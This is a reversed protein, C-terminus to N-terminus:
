KPSPETPEKECSHLKASEAACTNKTARNLKITPKNKKLLPAPKKHIKPLSHEYASLNNGYYFNQSYKKESTLTSCGFLLFISILTILYILARLFM